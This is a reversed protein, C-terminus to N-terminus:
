FCPNYARITIDVDSVSKDKQFLITKEEDPRMMFYNDEFVCKGDLVLALIFTNAKIKVYTEALEIIEYKSKPLHLDQIRKSVWFARHLVNESMDRLECILLGGNETLANIKETEELSSNWICSVANQNILVQKEYIPICRDDLQIFLEAYVMQDEYQDNVVSVAYRDKEKSVSAVLPRVANKFGYYGAKPTGYYDVLAWGAATWCDNFMWYLLGSAYDRNRRYLDMTFRVWDYQLYQMKTLRDEADTFRGFLKEALVTMVMFIPFTDLPPCPNNKTHFEMAEFDYPNSLFRKLSSLAPAGLVPMEMSFRSLSYDSMKSYYDLLESDRFYEFMSNIYFTLHCIGTTSAAFLSGGYPSTPIFRRLYDLRHLIPQVTDLATKRGPYDKTTMSGGAGNENDGIWLVLSPHNRLRRIVEEAESAIHQQFTKEHEPYHGCAMMFDQAVMIGLRDCESYFLDSEYIGGGWVRLFNFGGAKTTSLLQQYKQETAASPFPECPVWCAGQCFVKKGNVMITFGYFSTNKDNESFCPMKQREQCYLYNPSGPTDAVEIVQITRIGFLTSKESIITTGDMICVTFCYLPQDGMGNPYWLLPDTITVHDIILKEAVATESRWIEKGSPAYITQICIADNDPSVNEFEVETQLCATDANIATTAVFISKLETENPFCLTVNGQIGYTLFRDVWDWGFTCQMRRVHLRESTFAAAYESLGETMESITHFEVRLTNEGIRVHKTIDFTHSIFMNDAYGVKQGNVFIDCFTDLCEFTLLTRPHIKELCFTRSYTFQSQEIFKSDEAQYDLMYNSIQKNRLLDTHACGPVLGEFFKKEPVSNNSLTPMTFEGHWKGNLSYKQM